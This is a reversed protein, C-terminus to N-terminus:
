RLRAFGQMAAIVGTLSRRGTSRAHLSGVLLGSDVFIPDHSKAYVLRASQSGIYASGPRRSLLDEATLVDQPRMM